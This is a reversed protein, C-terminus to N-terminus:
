MGKAKESDSLMTLSACDSCLKFSRPWLLNYTREKATVHSACASQKKQSRSYQKHSAIQCQCDMRNSFNKRSIEIRIRYKSCISCKVCKLVRVTKKGSVMVTERELWMVANFEKDLDRKSKKFM